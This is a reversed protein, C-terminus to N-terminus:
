SGNSPLTEGHQSARKVCVPCLARTSVVGDNFYVQWGLEEVGRIMDDCTESRLDFYGAQFRMCAPYTLWNRCRFTVILGTQDDFDESM